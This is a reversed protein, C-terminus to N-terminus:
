PQCATARELWRCTRESSSSARREAVAAKRARTSRALSAMVARALSGARSSAM